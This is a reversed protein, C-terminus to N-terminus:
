LAILIVHACFPVNTGIKIREDIRGCYMFSDNKQGKDVKIIRWISFYIDCQYM